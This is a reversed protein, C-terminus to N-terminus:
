LSLQRRINKAIPLIVIIDISVDPLMLFVQWIAGVPEEV